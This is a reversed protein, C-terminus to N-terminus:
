EEMFWIGKTNLFDGCAVNRDLIDSVDISPFYSAVLNKVREKLEDVNDQQIEVTYYSAVAILADEETKCKKLKREIIEVAFNGTGGCPELFTKEIDFAHGGNEEDLMDCMKKVLWAPTFVEAFKKVREKSKILPENKTNVSMSQKGDKSTNKGTSYATNILLLPKQRTLHPRIFIAHAKLKEGLGRQKVRMTM